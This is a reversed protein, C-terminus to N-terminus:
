KATEKQLKVEDDVHSHDITCGPCAHFVTCIAAAILCWLHIAAAVLEPCCVFDVHWGVEQKSNNLAATSLWLACCRLSFTVVGGSCPLVSGLLASGCMDDHM